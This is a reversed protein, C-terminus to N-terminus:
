DPGCILGKIVCHARYCQVFCGANEFDTTVFRQLEVPAVHPHPLTDRRTKASQDALKDKIKYIGLQHMADRQM